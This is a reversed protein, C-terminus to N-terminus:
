CAVDCGQRRMVLASVAPLAFWEPVAHATGDELLRLGALWRDDRDQWRSDSVPDTGECLVATWEAADGSVACGWVAVSLTFPVTEPM